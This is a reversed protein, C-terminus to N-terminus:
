LVFGEAIPRVLYRRARDRAVVGIQVGDRESWELELKAHAQAAGVLKDVDHSIHLPGGQQANGVYFVLEMDPLESSVVTAQAASKVQEIEDPTETTKTRTAM